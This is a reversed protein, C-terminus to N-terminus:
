KQGEETTHIDSIDPHTSKLNEKFSSLTKVFDRASERPSVDVSHRIRFHRVLRTLLRELMRVVQLSIHVVDHVILGGIRLTEARLFSKFDVHTLIFEIQDVRKDFRTRVPAFFRLGRRTEYDSLMLFGAPLGLAFLIFVFNGM